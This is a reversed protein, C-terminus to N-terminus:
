VSTLMYHSVSHVAFALCFVSLPPSLGSHSMLSIFVTFIYFINVTHTHTHNPPQQFSFYILSNVESSFLKRKKKKGIIYHTHIQSAMNKDHVPMSYWSYDGMSERLCVYRHTCECVPCRISLCVVSQTKHCMRHECHFGMLNRCPTGPIATPSSVTFM